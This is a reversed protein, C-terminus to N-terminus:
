GAPAETYHLGDGFRFLPAATDFAVDSRSEEVARTSSPLDFPLRGESRANGFVVAAFAEASSGFSVLLAAAEAAIPTLIAPRDLYVDVVTPVTAFLSQL